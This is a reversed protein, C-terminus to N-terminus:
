EEADLSRKKQQSDAQKTTNPETGFYPGLPGIGERGLVAMMGVTSAFVVGLVAYPMWAAGEVTTRPTLLWTFRVNEDELFRKSWKFLDSTEHGAITVAASHNNWFETLGLVDYELETDNFHLEVSEGNKVSVLFVGDEQQRWGEMTNTEGEISLADDGSILVKSVDTSSATLRWTLPLNWGVLEGSTCAETILSEFRLVTGEETVEAAHDFEYCRRASWYSWAEGWTTLWIDEADNLYTLVERDHRVTADNVRGIWYLNVLGGASVEEQISDLSTMGKELSGGRRGLNYWDWVDEPADTSNLWASGELDNEDGHVAFGQSAIREHQAMTLSKPTYTSLPHVGWQSANIRETIYSQCAQAVAGPDNYWSLGPMGYCGFEDGSELRDTGYSTQLWGDEDWASEALAVPHFVILVLTSTLLLSLGRSKQAGRM